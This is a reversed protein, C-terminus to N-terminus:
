ESLYVEIGDLDNENGIVIDQVADRNLKGAAISIALSTGILQDTSKYIGYGENLWLRNENKNINAAVLDLDGDLDADILEIRITGPYFNPGAENFKGSNNENLWVKIGQEIKVVVLDNDGDGDIDGGNIDDCGIQTGFTQQSEIFTGSGDNIFLKPTHDLYCFFLDLSHDGDFDLIFMDPSTTGGYEEDSRTFFGQGDNVWLRNSSRAYIIFIDLNGDGNIDGLRIFQPSDGVDGINQGSDSFNGAGDNFFVKSTEGHFILFIDVYSDGNFDALGADHAQGNSRGFSNGSETFIGTGDNIWLKSPGIYNTVFLDNDYDLDIDTIELGFVRSNGFNQPSVSFIGRNSDQIATSPPETPFSETLPLDIFKGCSSFLLINIFTFLIISKGQTKM